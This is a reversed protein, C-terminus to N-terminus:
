SALKEEIEETKVPMDFDQLSDENINARENLNYMSSNLNIKDVFNNIPKIVKTSADFDFVHWYTGATNTPINYTAHLTEGIYVDVKAGSNSMDVSSSSNRNSYDHVYFSYTGEDNMKYVTTTEPGYSDRDDLDLDAYLTGNEFYKKNNYYIHFTDTGDVTPGVLHSDLDEPTEGWTLVVRLDSPQIDSSNPVLTNNQNLSNGSMVYINFHKTIYGDKIMEVTYNGLPLIIEYRGEYNTVTKLLPDGSLNNWGARVNIITDSISEGTVANTIIGGATGVEGDAGQGVMLYTELYTEEGNVVVEISEFSIYGNKSIKVKYTGANLSLEYQGNIDSTTELIPANNSSNNNYVQILADKLFVNRNGAQAITGKITGEGYTCNPVKNLNEFHLNKKFPSTDSDWANLTYSLELWDKLKCEDLATLELFGFITADSCIMSPHPTIIVNAGLGGSVSFDILNWTSCIELLGSLKPGIKGEINLENIDSINFKATNIGRVKNNLVQIGNTKETSFVLQVSGSIDYYLAIKVVAAAGPIGYVPLKGLDILRPGTPFSDDDVGLRVSLATETEDSIKFYVNNIDIDLFNIDMDVKYEIKPLVLKVEGSIEGNGIEKKIKLTYSGLNPSSGEMDLNIRSDQTTNEIVEVGEEPIFNSFDGTAYGQVDIYELTEEIKPEETEVVVKGDNVTVKTIKYPTENPLVIIDGINLNSVTDDTNFTITEGNVEYVTTDDLEIVGEKYEFTNDYNEDIESSKLVAQIGETIYQAESETLNRLPYFNNKELPILGLSVAVEIEKSYTIDSIDNCVIDTDGAFGLAKVSTVTAFERTAPADPNFSEDQDVLISNVYAYLIDEEYQTGEIDNFPYAINADWNIEHQNKLDLIEVLNSIWQGRTIIAGSPAVKNSSTEYNVIIEFTYDKNDITITEKISIDKKNNEDAQVVVGQFLSTLLSLCLLMSIFKKSRTNKKKLLVIILSASIVLAITSIIITNSDGTQVEDDTNSDLVPPNNEQNDNNGVNENNTNNEDNENGINNDFDEDNIIAKDIKCYFEHTITEGANITGIEKSLTSKDKISIGEPIVSNININDIPRIGVNTIKLVAKIDGDTNALNEVQLKVKLNDQESIEAYAPIARFMILMLSLMIFLRKIINKM